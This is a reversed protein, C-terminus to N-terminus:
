SWCSKTYTLSIIGAIVEDDKSAAAPKADGAAPKAAPKAAAAVPAPEPGMLMEELYLFWAAAAAGGLVVVGALIKTRKNLQFKM